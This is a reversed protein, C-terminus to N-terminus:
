NIIHMRLCSLSYSMKKEWKNCPETPHKLTQMDSWPRSNTLARFSFSKSIAPISWRTDITSIVRLSIAKVLPHILCHGFSNHLIEIRFLIIPILMQLFTEVHETTACCVIWIEQLQRIGRTPLIIWHQQQLSHYWLFHSVYCPLFQTGRPLAPQAGLFSCWIENM